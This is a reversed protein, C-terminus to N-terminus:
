RSQADSKEATPQAAVFGFARALPPVRRLVLFELVLIAVMSLGLLPFMLGLGAMVALLGWGIKRDPEKRPAGIGKPRRKRWMVLSSAVSVLLALTGTLTLLQTWIGLARGEHLNIGWEITKAMPTADSFGVTTIVQASYQDIYASNMETPARNEQGDGDAWIGAFFSAAPDEASAPIVYLSGPGLAQQAAHIVADLPAQTGPAWSLVGGSNAAVGVQPGGSVPIQSPSSVPLNGMIWPSAGDPLAERFTSPAETEGYYGYEAPAGMDAAVSSFKAGWVGTWVLGTVMFFLTIFAFLVGTVAHVDRWFVRPNRERRRVRMAERFGKRKGRPWWLYIGTIVMVITWCAMMEIYGDGYKGFKEVLWDGTVLKGHMELAIDVINNTSRSGTLAGSYPDVWVDRVSGGATTIEFQTARSPSDPTHLADISADPYAALVAARQQEYPVALAAPTVKMAEGYLIGNLQPKFLYIIGTISLLVIVPIALLGAYFHWRWVTRYLSRQAPTSGEVPAQTTMASM